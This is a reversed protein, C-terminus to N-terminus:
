WANNFPDVFCFRSGDFDKPVRRLLWLLRCLKSKLFSFNMLKFLVPLTNKKISKNCLCYICTTRLYTLFNNRCGIESCLYKYVLPFSYYSQSYLHFHRCHFILLFFVAALCAIYTQSEISSSEHLWQQQLCVINIIYESHTHTAKPICCAMRMCWITM